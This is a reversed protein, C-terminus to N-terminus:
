RRSQKKMVAKLSDVNLHDAHVHTVLVADIDRLREMDEHELNQSTFQGPDTLIKTRAEELVFCSHGIKHIKM